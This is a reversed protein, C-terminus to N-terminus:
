PKIHVKRSAVKILVDDHSSIIITKDAFATKILNILIEKSEKSLSATPEDLLLIDPNHLYIRLFWVVQKQGGSLKSGNKGVPTDLGKKLKEFVSKLKFQELLEEVKERTTDPKGFTINELISRNFLIPNQTMYGFKKFLDSQNKSKYNHGNFYLDGNTPKILGLIIKMLTSKGTGIDGVLAIKEGKNIELNFDKIISQNSTPYKYELNKITILHETEIRPEYSDESNDSVKPQTNLQNNPQNNLEIHTTNAIKNLTQYEQMMDHLIDTLYILTDVLEVGVFYISLFQGKTMVGKGLLQFSRYMIFLLTGASVLTGLLGWKLFARDKTQKNNQYNKSYNEILKNEANFQNYTFITSFNSLYDEIEQYLRLYSGTSQAVKDGNNQTSLYFICGITIFFGLITLPLIYDYKLLNYSFILITITYPIIHKFTNEYWRGIVSKFEGIAGLKEGIVIDEPNKFFANKIKENLSEYVLAKIQIRQITLYYQEFNGIFYILMNMVLIFSFAYIFLSINKNFMDFMYGYYNPLYYYNVVTTAFFLLNLFFQDKNEINYKWFIKAIFSLLM